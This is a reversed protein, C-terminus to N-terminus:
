NTLEITQGLETLTYVGGTAGLMEGTRQYRAKREADNYKIVRLKRAREFTQTRVDECDPYEGLRVRGFSRFGSNHILHKGTERMKRVLEAVKPTVKTVTKM